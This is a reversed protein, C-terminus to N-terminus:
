PAPGTNGVGGVLRIGLPLLLLAELDFAGIALERGSRDAPVAVGTRRELDLLIPSLDVEVAEEVEFAALM